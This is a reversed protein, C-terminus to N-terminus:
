EAGHHALAGNSRSLDQRWRTWVEDIPSQHAAAGLFRALSGPFEFDLVRVLSGHHPMREGVALVSDLVRNAGILGPVDRGEGVVLEEVFVPTGSMTIDTRQSVRGAIEGTRGLVVSERLCVRGGADLTIRTLRDVNAGHAIVMPLAHWLLTGGTEVVINVTWTSREGDADYAVTGGIDELELTCGAGVTVDIRVHDGGLLLAGGAVLAVRASDPGQEIVRPVIAGARFDLRARDGSPQLSISTM